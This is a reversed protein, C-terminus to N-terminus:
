SLRSFAYTHAMPAQHHYQHVHPAEQHGKSPRSFGRGEVWFHGFTGFLFFFCGRGFLLFLLFCFFCFARFCKKSARSYAEIPGLLVELPGVCAELLGGIPGRNSRWHSVLLVRRTIGFDDGMVKPISFNLSDRVLCINKGGLGWFWHFFEGFNM